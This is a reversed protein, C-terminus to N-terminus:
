LFSKVHKMRSLAHQYNRGLYMSHPTQEYYDRYHGIIEFLHPCNKRDHWPRRSRICHKDCSVAIKCEIHGLGWAVKVADYNMIEARLEHRISRTQREKAVKNKKNRPLETLHRIAFHIRPAGATVLGLLELLFFRAILFHDEFVREM